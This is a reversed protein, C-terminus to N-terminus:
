NRVEHGSDSEIIGYAYCKYLDPACSRRSEPLDDSAFQGARYRCGGRCEELVSCGAAACDLDALPIPHISKWAEALGTRISGARKDAYFSCKCIDGNALVSALHLGCAFGEGGGHIGGGFGHSLYRGAVDPSLRFEPHEPFFGAQSPIDVTWDLVGIGAFLVSMGEFEDLNRRHVMTAVSVPINAHVIREIADIAKRFTGKGRLADHGQELGDISVQIEDVCLTGILEDGIMQGNTFLVKRFAYGSLLKNFEHFQSHLVPEGGTILLRLGQMAEFEDLVKKLEDLSLETREPDGVYCHHCRLSCRNTIQLELYRLSPVPSQVPEPRRVSVPATVLLGEGLCFSLFEPDEPAEAGDPSAAGSLWSFGHGDLEYLEDQRINYVCPEELLKLAAHPALYYKM